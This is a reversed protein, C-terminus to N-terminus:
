RPEEEGFKARLERAVRGYEAVGREAESLPVPDGMLLREATTHATVARPHEALGHRTLRDVYAGLLHRLRLHERLTDRFARHAREARLVYTRVAQEARGLRELLAPVPRGAADDMAAHQAVDHHLQVLWVQTRPAYEVPRVQGSVHREVRRYVRAMRREAAALEGVHGEIRELWREARDDPLLYPLMQAFEGGSGTLVLLLRTGRETLAKLVRAAVAPETRSRDAGIVAVAPRTSEGTAASFTLTQDLATLAVGVPGPDQPLDLAADTADILLTISGLRPAIGARALYPAGPQDPPGPARERDAMTLVLDLARRERADDADLFLVETDWAGPEAHLWDVVTRQLGHPRAVRAEDPGVSHAGPIVSPGTVYPRVGPLYRALTATPVFLGRRGREGSEVVIGLVRDTGEQLVAAGSFGSVVLHEPRGPAFEVREDGHGAAGRCVGSIWRGGSDRVPFGDVVVPLGSPDGRWLTIPSPEPAPADLALLALDGRSTGFPPLWHGEVVTATRTPPDTLGAVSPFDVRVRAPRRGTVPDQVVHACTLVLDGGLLVGTGLVAGPADGARQGDHERTARRLRVRWGSEGVRTNAREGTDATDGTM